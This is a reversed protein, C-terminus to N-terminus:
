LCSKGLKDIIQPEQSPKKQFHPLPSIVHSSQSVWKKGGRPWNADLRHLRHFM